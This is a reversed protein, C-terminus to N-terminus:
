FVIMMAAAVGYKYGRWRTEFEMEVRSLFQDRPMKCVLM